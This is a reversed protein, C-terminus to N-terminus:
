KKKRSYPGFRAEPGWPVFDPAVPNNSHNEIGDPLAAKWGARLQNMLESRIKSYGPDNAYSKSELPDVQHDYLEQGKMSGDLERWEVYRYRTTRIAYGEFEARPYGRPYQSFAAKKWARDPNELLPVMSNGELYGPNPIGTLECLTPFIDVYEVLADTIQSEQSGPVSIIMPARTGHEFNSQKGWMGQEGLHWGHDSILVVITHERLGLTKLENLLRGVQADIYSVCAAYAHKLDRARHDPILAGGGDHPPEYKAVNSHARAYAPANEPLYKNPALPIDEQDYLDFYKKPACWPLHPKYYGVALFFPKDSQSMRHLTALAEDTNAGDKYAHDEVDAIEFTPRDNGTLRNSEPNYYNPKRSDYSPESFDERYGHHIKGLGRVYYGENMFHRLLSPRDKKLLEEVTYISYPYDTGTADPRLGTLFSARSAACVAQQVYARNFLTGEAALQDIHPTIMHRVGYCGLENRLDDSIILLVNPKEHRQGFLQALGSLTILSIAFFM